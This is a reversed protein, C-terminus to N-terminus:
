WCNGALMASVASALDPRAATPWSRPRDSGPDILVAAAIGASLSARIDFYPDDGIMVCEDLRVDLEAAARNFIEPSPKDVGAVASDVIATCHRVLGATTLQQHLRGDNNSVVAIRYGAEALQQLAAEAGPDVRSWLPTGEQDLEHVRDWVAQGCAVTLGAHRAWSYIKATSNWFAIPDASAAGEWVTRGLARTAAGEPLASGAALAAQQFLTDDPHILVRGADILM